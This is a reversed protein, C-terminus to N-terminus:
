NPQSALTHKDSLLILWSLKDSSLTDKSSPFLWIYVVTILTLTVMPDKYGLTLLNRSEALEAELTNLREKVDKASPDEIIYCLFTREFIKLVKEQDSTM